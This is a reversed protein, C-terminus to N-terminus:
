QFKKKKKEDNSNKDLLLETFEIFSQPHDDIRSLFDEYSLDFFEYSNESGAKVSCYFLKIMNETGTIDQVKLGTMTEYEIMARFSLRVPYRKVGIDIYKTQLLELNDM